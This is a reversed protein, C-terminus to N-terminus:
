SAATTEPQLSSGAIFGQPGPDAELMDEISQRTRGKPNWTSRRLKMWWSDADNLRMGNPSISSPFVAPWTTECNRTRFGGLLIIDKNGLSGMESPSAAEIRLAPYGTQAGFIVRWTLSVRGSDLPSGNNGPYGRYEVLDAYRTFPYGAEAFRDLKPM